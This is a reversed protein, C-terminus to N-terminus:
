QLLGNLKEYDAMTLTGAAERLQVSFIVYDYRARSRDRQARFLAQRTNLVDVTTRTGVELGAESAALASQTSIVAQELAKIRSITANINLFAASVQRQTSRTQSELTQRAQEYLYESERTRASVGGGEYIPVTLKLMIQQTTLSDNNFSKGADNTYSHQGILDVYPLHGARQVSINSRAADVAAKAAQIAQSEEMARDVWSKADNPEPTKPAFEQLTRLEKHYQGTLERLSEFANSVDNEAVIEQASAIDFAAQAEHVDTIAILGVEFRQKTQELQRGIAEKEARALALNDQAALVDFYRQAVRTMLNRQAADFQLDAQRVFAENQELRKYTDHHYVPQVLSLDFGASGNSDSASGIERRSEAMDATAQIQPLLGAVNERRRQRVAQRAAEASLLQPDNKEAIWYVDLLNEAAATGCLLAGLAGASLISIWRKKM